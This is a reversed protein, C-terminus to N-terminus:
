RKSNEKKSKTYHCMKCIVQLGSAKCFLRGIFGNWDDFGTVPIVPKVHDVQYEKSGVIEKCLNCKYKGREVRANKMVEYRPNWRLSARRLLATIVAREKATFKAM